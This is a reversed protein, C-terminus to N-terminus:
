WGLHSKIVQFFFCAYRPRWAQALFKLGRWSGYWQLYARRQTRLVDGHSCHPQDVIASVNQDYAEWNRESLWGNTDAIKGWETGPYPAALAFNVIDLPLRRSLALTRDMSECTDGYLGLMFYGWVRLGAQKAWTVAQIADAVTAEKKNMALVEDDGAEFGYCIM